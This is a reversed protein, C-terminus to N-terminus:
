FLLLGAMAGMGIAFIPHKKFKVLFVTLATIIAFAKWNLSQLLQNTQSYDAWNFMTMSLVGFTAVGILGVVVPRVGYFASKIIPANSFKNFAKSVFWSIIFCPAILGLTTIIAGSIGYLDFGIYAALKIGIPGPTSESIAIMFFFMEETLYGPEVIVQLLLPISALGGGVTFLGVYLFRLLLDFLSM